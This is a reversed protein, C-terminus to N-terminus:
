TATLGCGRVCVAAPRESRQCRLLVAAGPHGSHPVAHAAAAEPRVRECVGAGGRVCGARVQVGVPVCRQTKQVHSIPCASSALVCQDSCAAAAQRAITCQVTLHLPACGAECAFHERLVNCNNLSALHEAACRRGAGECLAACSEGASGLVVAVFQPIEPTPPAPTTPKGAPSIFCRGQHMRARLYWVM